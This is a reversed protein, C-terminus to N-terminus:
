TESGKTTWESPEEKEETEEPPPCEECPPRAVPKVGYSMLMVMVLGM